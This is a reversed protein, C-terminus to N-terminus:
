SLAEWGHTPCLAAIVHEGGHETHMELQGQNALRQRHTLCAFQKRTEGCAPWLMFADLGLTLVDGRRAPTVTAGTLTLQALESTSM